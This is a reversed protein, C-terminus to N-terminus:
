LKKKGALSRDIQKGICAGLTLPSLLLLGRTTVDEPFLPVALRSMLACACALALAWSALSVIHRAFNTFADLFTGHLAPQQDEGHVSDERPEASRTEQGKNEVENGRRPEAPDPTM